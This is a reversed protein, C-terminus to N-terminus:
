GFISNIEELRKNSTIGEIEGLYLSSLFLKANNSHSVGAGGKTKFAESADGGCYATIIDIGGPHYQIYPTAYYVANDIIIWCDSSSNHKRVEELSLTILSSNLMDTKNGTSDAVATINTDGVKVRNSSIYFYSFVLLLLIWLAATAKFTNKLKESGTRTINLILAALTHLIVLPLFLFVTAINHIDKMVGYDVNFYGSKAAMLGSALSLLIALALLWSTYRITKYAIKHM